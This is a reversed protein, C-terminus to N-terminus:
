HSDGLLAIRRSEQESKSRLVVEAAQLRSILLATDCPKTVYDDVGASMAKMVQERGEVGTVLIAYTYPGHPNERIERVIELGDRGPMRWDTILLPFHRKRLLSLAEDGDWVESVEHGLGELTVRLWKRFYYDDEALLIRM